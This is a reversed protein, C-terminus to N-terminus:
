KTVTIQDFVQGDVDLQKLILKKGDTEILTFSHIHSVLKTTYPVWNEPPGKKWLEPNESIESDYLVAGGAGSVIYIIGEPKTQTVGDFQLDLSFTGDVRGEDSIIYDTGAPNKKPDFKLPVTRQYNHVHGALVLDVGQEELLPSLLRMIQYDYHKPSSNFAPHHYTVIKWDAKSYRLDNRLWEILEPDLPNVYDNADLSVFHVNGYDFSYNAIRPFRPATNKTFAKVLSANGKAKLPTSTLPANLPLDSYYFFALGDPHKDFDASYIDHNGLLMYFPINNMLQAGREPSTVPALYYPFFRTRYEIERGYSYVMDGPILAFQPKQQHIQWAIKAQEPSGVGCDAFVAFRTKPKKTRSDFSGEAITRSGLSVKFSYSEDFKLSSLQARYLFTTKNNLCLKVTSVKAQLLKGPTGSRQQYEVTYKGPISDTQWILVKVEKNLSPANGPQLYPPVLIQQATVPFGSLCCGILVAVCTLRTYKM